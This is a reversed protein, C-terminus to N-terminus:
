FMGVIANVISRLYSPDAVNKFYISFILVDVLM